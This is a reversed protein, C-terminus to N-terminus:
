IFLVLSEKVIEPKEPAQFILTSTLGPGWSSLKVEIVIEDRRLHKPSEL